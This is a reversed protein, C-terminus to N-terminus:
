FLGNAHSKQPSNISPDQFRRKLKDESTIGAIGNFLSYDLKRRRVAHLQLLQLV